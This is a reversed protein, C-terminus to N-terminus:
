KWESHFIEGRPRDVREFGLGLFSDKLANALNSPLWTSRYGDYFSLAASFAPVPIGGEIARVTVRRLWPLCQDLDSKFSADLLISGRGGSRELARAAREAIRAKGDGAWLKAALALDLDLGRLESSRKLLSLSEAAALIMAALLARGLEAVMSQREGTQAPKPGGLVASADVREDKLAAIAAAAAAQGMMAAPACNDIALSTARSCPGEALTADLVKEVLPEGDEDRLGLADATAAVLPGALEGSNWQAFITRMEDHSMRIGSKLIHYAEALLEIELGSLAARVLAFATGAGCGGILASSPANGILRRVSEWDAGSGGAAVTTMGSRVTGGTVGFDLYRLKADSCRSAISAAEFCDRGSCTMLFDGPELRVLAEDLAAERRSPEFAGLDVLLARPRPLAAVLSALDAMVVTGDGGAAIGSGGGTSPGHLVLASGADLARRAVLSGAVDLGLIGLTQNGAM